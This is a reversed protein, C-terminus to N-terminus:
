GEDLLGPWDSLVAEAFSEATYGSDYDQESIKRLALRLRENARHLDIITDEANRVRDPRPDIMETVEKVNFPHAAAYDRIVRLIARVARAPNLVSPSLNHVRRSASEINM